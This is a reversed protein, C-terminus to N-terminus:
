VGGFPNNPDFVIHGDAELEIETNDAYVATDPDSALNLNAVISDIDTDGTDFEENSYEFLECKLKWVYQKGAQYFPDEPEVYKIELISRTLPLYVIDGERPHVLATEETFRKKSVTFIATDNMAIGFKSFFEGDGGFGETDELRMEIVSATGFTKDPDENFLYDPNVTNRPVYKVDMGANQIYEITLSEILNQENANNAFYANTAM